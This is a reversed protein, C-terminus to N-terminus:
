FESQPPRENIPLSESIEIQAPLGFQGAQPPFVLRFARLAIQSSKLNYDSGYLTDGLIAYGHRAMEFRLQHSRGTLPQLHWFYLNDKEGLFIARTRSLKGHPSEYARRKGKLIKCQWEIVAAKKLPAATIEQGPFTQAFINKTAAVYTKEILSNEFWSNAEAHANSTKAFILLGSVEFDLRHVPFIDRGLQQQLLLGIVPRQDKEQYRSPVSLAGAPKEVIVFESNEFCIPIM